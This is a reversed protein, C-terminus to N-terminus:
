VFPQGNGMATRQEGAGCTKFIGGSGMVGGSRTPVGLSGM